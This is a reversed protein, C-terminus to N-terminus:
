ESTWLPYDIGPERNALLELCRFCQRYAGSTVQEDTIDAILLCGCIAFGMVAGDEARDAVPQGARTERVHARDPEIIGHGWFVPIDGPRDATM